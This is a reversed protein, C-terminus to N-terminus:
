IDTVVGDKIITADQKHLGDAAQYYVDDIGYNLTILGSSYMKTLNSTASPQCLITGTEYTNSKISYKTVAEGYSTASSDHAAGSIYIDTGFYTFGYPASDNTRKNDSSDLAGQIIASTGSGIDYTCIDSMISGAISTKTCGVFFVKGLMYFIGLIKQDSLYGLPAVSSNLINFSNDNINYILILKLGNFCYLKGNYEVMKTPMSYPSNIPSTTVTITNLITGNFTMAADDINIRVMRFTIKTNNSTETTYQLTYLINDVLYNALITQSSSGTPALAKTGNTLTNNDLDIQMNYNSGTCMYFINNYRFSAFPNPVIASNINTTLTITNVTLENLDVVNINKIFYSSSGSGYYLFLKNNYITSHIYPRSNIYYNNKFVLPLDGAAGDELYYNDKILINNIESPNRKIWLGNQASPKTTQCFINLDGNNYESKIAGINAAMQDFSDSTSTPVGKETIAESIKEKGYKVLEDNM